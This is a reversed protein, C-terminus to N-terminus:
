DMKHLHQHTRRFCCNSQIHAGQLSRLIPMLEEEGEKEEGEEARGM